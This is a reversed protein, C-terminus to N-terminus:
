NPPRYSAPRSSLSELLKISPQFQWDEDVRERVLKTTLQPDNRVLCPWENKQTGETGDRKPSFDLRERERMRPQDIGLQHIRGIWSRVFRRFFEFALEEGSRNGFKGVVLDSVESGQLVTTRGESRLKYDDPGNRVLYMKWRLGPMGSVDIEGDGQVKVFECLQFASKKCVAPDTECVTLVSPPAGLCRDQVQDRSSGLKPFGLLDRPGNTLELHAEHSEIM